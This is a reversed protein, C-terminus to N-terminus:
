ERKDWGSKREPVRAVMVDPKGKNRERQRDPLPEISVPAVRVGRPEWKRNRVLSVIEQWCAHCYRKGDAQTTHKVPFRKGCGSCTIVYTDM